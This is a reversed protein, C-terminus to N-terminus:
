WIVGLFLSATKFDRNFAFQSSITPQLIGGAWRIGFELPIVLNTFNTKSQSIGNLKWDFSVNTNEDGIRNKKIEFITGNMYGIGLGVFPSVSSRSLYYRTALAFMTRNISQTAQNQYSTTWDYQLFTGFDWRNNYAYWYNLQFSLPLLDNSQISRMSSLGFYAGFLHKAKSQSQKSSKGDILKKATEIAMRQWDAEKNQKVIHKDEANGELTAQQPQILPYLLNVEIQLSTNECIAKGYIAFKSSVAQARVQACDNQSCPLPQLDSSIQIDLESRMKSTLQQIFLQLNKECVADMNQKEFPLLIWKEAASLHDFSLFIYILFLYSHHKLWLM